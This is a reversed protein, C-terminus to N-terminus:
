VKKIASFILAGDDAMGVRKSEVIISDLEILLQSASPVKNLQVIAIEQIREPQLMRASTLTQMTVDLSESNEDNLLAFMDGATFSPYHVEGALRDITKCWRDFRAALAYAPISEDYWQDLLLAGKRAVRLAEGLVMGLDSFHHATFESVVFDVSADPFPLEEGVGERVDLGQDRLHKVSESSCELGLARVGQARLRMLLAGSGCGIDLVSRPQSAMLNTFFVERYYPHPRVENRFVAPDMQMNM